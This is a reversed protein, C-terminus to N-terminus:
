KMSECASSLVELVMPSGRTVEKFAIFLETWIKIYFRNNTSIWCSKAISACIIWVTSFLSNITGLRITEQNNWIFHRTQSLSM